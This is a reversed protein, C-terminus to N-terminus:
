PSFYAAIGGTQASEVASPARYVAPWCQTDWDASCMKSGHSYGLGGPSTM